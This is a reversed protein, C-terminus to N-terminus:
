WDGDLLLDDIHGDEEAPKFILCDRMSLARGKSQDRNTNILSAHLHAIPMQANSRDDIPSISCFYLFESAERNTLKRKAERPTLGTRAFL